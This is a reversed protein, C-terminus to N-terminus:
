GRDDAVIRRVVPDALAEAAMINGISNGLRDGNGLRSLADMTIALRKVAAIAEDREERMQGFQDVCDLNAFRVADVEAQLKGAKAGWEAADDMWATLTAELEAIRDKYAAVEANLAAIQKDTEEDTRVELEAIRDLLALVAAPSAAVIFAADPEYIVPKSMLDEMSWWPEGTVSKLSIEALKRLEDTM